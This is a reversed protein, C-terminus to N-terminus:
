NPLYTYTIGWQEAAIARTLAHEMAPFSGEWVFMFRQQGHTYSQLFRDDPPIVEVIDDLGVSVGNDLTAQTGYARAFRSRSDFKVVKGTLLGGRAQHAKIIAGVTVVKGWRNTYTSM